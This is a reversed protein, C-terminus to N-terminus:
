QKKIKLTKLCKSGPKLAGGVGYKNIVFDGKWMNVELWWERCLLLV